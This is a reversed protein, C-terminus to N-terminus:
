RNIIIQKTFLNIIIFILLIVGASTRFFLSHHIFLAPFNRRQKYIKPM